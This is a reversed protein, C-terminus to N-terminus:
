QLGVGLADLVGERLAPIGGGSASDVAFDAWSPVQSPDASTAV